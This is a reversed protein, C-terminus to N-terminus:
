CRLPWFQGLFVGVVVALLFCVLMPSRDLPWWHRASSGVFLGWGIVLFLPAHHMTCSITARNGAVYWAFTNWAALFAVVALLICRTIFGDAM